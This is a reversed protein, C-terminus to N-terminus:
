HGEESTHEVSGMMYRRWFKAVRTQPQAFAKKYLIGEYLTFLQAKKRVCSADKPDSPLTGDRLYSVLPDM